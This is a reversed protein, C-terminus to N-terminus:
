DHRSVNVRMGRDRGFANLHYVVKLMVYRGLSEIREEQISTASNTFDVGTNQNLLDLGVLRIEVRDDLFTKAISAELLAVADSKGFVDQTYTRYDLSTSVTWSDDPYWTADAFYTRNVYERNFAPSLSYTLRNFTYRAGAGIDFRDKTRNELRAEVTSRLINSTNEVAPVDSKDNLNAVQRTFEAGRSYVTSNSLNLKARIPRIPTGFDVRGNVSWQGRDANVSTVEQRLDQDATRSRVIPNRTHTISAYTFLNVFTFQDFLMFHVDLTHRYEPTLDPNGVYVNLPDTNDVLPQLETMSPERTSARYRLDLNRGQRFQWGFSASPLLHTFGNAVSEDRDRIRGDLQSRQVELGVGFRLREDNHRLQTGGRYYTYVRNFGSSLDANLVPAGEVLDYISKDQDEDVQNREASVELLRGSGLPETLSLRQTQRLTNGLSQQQQLIEDYSVVDGLEYVDTRSALDASLDSDNLSLRAEAVVSRGRENLRRRWTLSADGGLNDGDSTYLVDNTNRALGTAAYTTRFGDNRLSSGSVQLNGRFRLDHGDQLTHDVNLNLRHALNDSTQYSSQDVLSSMESGLLQRQNVRRDQRNDITSLFYSSRVSTRSGFDHSANVGFALTESFGDSIDSGLPIGSDIRFGGGSMLTGMGGMFRIYDQFSFGQRNINNVNALLSFQSTPSFRNVSAQLDYREPDGYGGTMNGFYGQEAEETLDLNITKEEDGDRVGTFEAMDSLKDYVQVKEVAEAPLNRTAITPDNGFFEKGEVLVNKVDEGQAKISGDDQVEIGPLRRLLDEVSANPRVGFARANYELTDKKVVFPIHESSIVLEDLDSVSEALVVTGVDLDGEALTVDRSWGTYGVFSVQLVYDGAPVRRLRFSGDGAAIAFKVIVSDPKSLVVVTAGRLGAGSTDAVVGTVDHTPQAAVPACVGLLLLFLTAVSRRATAISM